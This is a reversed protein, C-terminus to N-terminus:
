VSNSHAVQWPRMRRACTIVLNTLKLAKRGDPVDLFMERIPNEHLAM